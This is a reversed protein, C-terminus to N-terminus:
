MHMTIHTTMKVLIDIWYLLLKALKKKFFKKYEQTQMYSNCNNRIAPTQTHLLWFQKKTINFPVKRMNERSNKTLFKLTSTSLVHYCYSLNRMQASWLGSKVSTCLLSSSNEKTYCNNFIEFYLMCPYNSTYRHFLGIQLFTNNVNVRDNVATNM